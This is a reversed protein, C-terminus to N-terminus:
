REGTKAAVTVSATAAAAAAAAAQERGHSRKHQSFAPPHTFKRPCMLCQYSKHGNGDIVVEEPTPKTSFPQLTITPSSLTL